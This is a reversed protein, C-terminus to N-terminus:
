KKELVVDRAGGVLSDVTVVDMVDGVGGDGRGGYEELCLGLKAM